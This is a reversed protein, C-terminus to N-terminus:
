KRNTLGKLRAIAAQKESHPMTDGELLEKVKALATGFSEATRELDDALDKASPQGYHPSCEWHWSKGHFNARGDMPQGPLVPEKCVDCIEPEEAM